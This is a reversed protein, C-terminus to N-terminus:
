FGFLRWIIFEYLIALIGLNALILIAIFWSTEGSRPRNKDYM